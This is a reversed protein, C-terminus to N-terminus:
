CHWSGSWWMRDPSCNENHQIWRPYARDPRDHWWDNYSDPAWSRNNYLAWDGGYWDMVVDSRCVDRGGRRDGGRDGRSDRCLDGRSRSSLGFRDAPATPAGVLARHQSFAPATALLSVAALSASVGLVITRM